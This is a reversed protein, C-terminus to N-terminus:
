RHKKLLWRYYAFKYDDADIARAYKSMKYFMEYLLDYMTFDYRYTDTLNDVFDIIDFRQCLACADKLCVYAGITCSNHEIYDSIEDDIAREWYSEMAFVDGWFRMSLDLDVSPINFM